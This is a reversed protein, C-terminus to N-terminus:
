VGAHQEFASLNVGSIAAAFPGTVIIGICCALVGLGGILSGLFAVLAFNVFAGTNTTIVRTIDAVDFADALGKGHAVHRYTMAPILVLNIGLQLVFGILQGIGAAVRLDMATLIVVVINWAFVVLFAPLLALFLAWGSGIYELGPEPLTQDGVKAREYVAKMWGMLNLAGAIPILLILGTIACKKLWDPDRTPSSIITGTDM